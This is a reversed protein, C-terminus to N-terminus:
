PRERNLRSQRDIFEPVPHWAMTKSVTRSEGAIEDTETEEYQWEQELVRGNWRLAGTFSSFTHKRCHSLENPM